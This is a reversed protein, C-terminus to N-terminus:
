SPSYNQEVWVCTPLGGTNRQHQVQQLANDLSASYYVPGVCGATPLTDGISHEGRFPRQQVCQQRLQNCTAENYNTQAIAATLLGERQKHAHVAATGTAYAGNNNNNRDSGGTPGSLCQGNDIRQAYSRQQDDSYSEKHKTFQSVGLVGNRNPHQQSLDHEIILEESHNATPFHNNAYTHYNKNVQTLHFSRM